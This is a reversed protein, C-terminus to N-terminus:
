RRDRQLLERLLAVLERVRGFRCAVLAALATAFALGGTAIIATLLNPFDVGGLLWGTLALAGLMVALDLALGLSERRLPLDLSRVAGRFIVLWGIAFSLGRAIAAGELGFPHLLALAFLAVANEAAFAHLTIVSHGQVNLAVQALLRRIIFVAGLLLWLLLAPVSEWGEGFLLRVLPDACAAAAALGPLAVLILLDRNLTAARALAAKTERLATLHALAVHYILQSVVINVTEVLRSAVAWQGAAALGYLWGVLTLFLRDTVQVVLGTLAINRSFVLVPRLTPWDLRLAPLRKRAVGLSLMLLTTTLVHQGVVSWVGFGTAAMALGLALGLSRSVLQHRAVTPFDLARRREAILPATLAGALVMPLFALLVPVLSPADLLRALPLAALALALAGASGALASFGFASALQLESYDPSRVLGDHVLSNVFVVLVLTLGLGISALGFADPGIWRAIVIVSALGIALTGLTELGSWLLSRLPSAPAAM